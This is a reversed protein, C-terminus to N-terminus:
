AKPKGRHWNDRIKRLDGIKGLDAEAEARALAKELYHNEETQSEIATDQTKTRAHTSQSGYLLKDVQREVEAYSSAHFKSLLMKRMRGREFQSPDNDDNLSRYEEALERISKNEGNM